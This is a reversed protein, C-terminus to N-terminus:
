AADSFRPVATVRCLWSLFLFCNGIVRCLGTTPMIVCTTFALDAPAIRCDLGVCSNGSSARSAARPSHGDPWPCSCMNTMGASALAISWITSWPAVPPTTYRSWAPNASSPRGSPSDTVRSTRAACPMPKQRGCAPSPLCRSCRRTPRRGCRAQRDWVRPPAFSGTCSMMPSFIPHPAHSTAASSMSPRSRTARSKPMSLAHLGSSVNTAATASSRPRPKPLGISQAKRGCM